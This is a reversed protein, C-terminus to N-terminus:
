SNEPIFLAAVTLKINATDTQVAAKVQFASPALNEIEKIANDLQPEFELYRKEWQINGTEAGMRASMTLVEDLHSVIGTLKQIRLVQTQTTKMKTQVYLSQWSIAMFLALTAILATSIATMPFHKEPIHKSRLM